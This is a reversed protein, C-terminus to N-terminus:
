TLNFFEGGRGLFVPQPFTESSLFFIKACSTKKVTGRSFFIQHDNQPEKRDAPKRELFGPDLIRSGLNRSGPIRSGPIWSDQIWSDQIWSDQHFKPPIQTWLLDFIDSFDHKSLAMDFHIQFFCSELSRGPLSLDWSWM